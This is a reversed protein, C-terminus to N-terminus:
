DRGFEAGLEVARTRAALVAAVLHEKVRDAEMRTIAAATTGGKSTVRARLVELAEESTAALHAAGAVTEIAFKRSQGADFGMARGAEQLAEIFFFVYAPGSGSLATVADLQEDGAVWVVSGAAALIREASSRQATSVGDLAALGSIGCGVLAPTNPMARVVCRTGLWRAIDDARIGAAISLVLQRSVHARLAACVERMQQPKVALVFVDAGDISADPAALARVGLENQLQHRRAADIEIATISAADTGARLLGNILAGAMNGGGIFCIQM